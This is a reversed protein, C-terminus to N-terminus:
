QGRQKTAALTLKAALLAAALSGGQWWLPEGLKLNQSAWLAFGGVSGAATAAALTLVYGRPEEPTTNHIEAESM